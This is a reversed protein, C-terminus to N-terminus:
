EIQSLEHHLNAAFDSAAVVAAKGPVIPFAAILYSNALLEPLDEDLFCHVDIEVPSSGAWSAAAVADRALYDQAFRPHPWIPLLTVGANDPGVVCRGQDSALWYLSGADAIKKVCYGYRKMLDTLTIMAAFEADSLRYPM